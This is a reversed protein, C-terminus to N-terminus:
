VLFEAKLASIATPLYSQDLTMGVVLRASAPSSSDTIEIEVAIRGRGDGSLTISHEENWFQLKAEGSLSKHLASVADLFLAWNQAAAEIAVSFPGSSIAVRTRYASRPYAPDPDGVRTLELRSHGDLISATM